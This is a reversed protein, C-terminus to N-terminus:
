RVNPTMAKVRRRLGLAGGWAAMAASLVIPVIMVWSVGRATCSGLAVVILAAAVGGVTAERVGANEGGWRGVVWGGFLAGALFPIAPIGLQIIWVKTQEGPPLARIADATEEISAHEGIHSAVLRVMIANAVYALPVWTAFTVVAGFGSWHWPPRPEEGQEEEPTAKLVPLRRQPKDAV